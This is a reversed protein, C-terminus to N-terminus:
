RHDGEINLRKLEKRLRQRARDLRNEVASIRIGLREALERCNWNETYKLLLLERDKPRLQDIAKRVLAREEDALLWSLPNHDTPAHGNTSVAAREMRRRHRGLKRRRELSALVAARYLWATVRDPNDLTPSKEITSVTLDQLVDEVLQSEGLRSYVVTWLWRRHRLVANAWDIRGKGADQHPEEESM